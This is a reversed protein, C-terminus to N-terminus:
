VKEARIPAQQCSNCPIIQHVRCFFTKGQHPFNHERAAFVLERHASVHERDAFMLELRAFM